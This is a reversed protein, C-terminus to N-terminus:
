KKGPKLILKVRKSNDTKNSEYIIEYKSLLAISATSLVVGAGIIVEATSITIGGITLGQAIAIASAGGTFPLLAIGGLISAGGVILSGKKLKKKRLIKNAMEGEVLIEKEKNKLAIELEDKTTVTVM